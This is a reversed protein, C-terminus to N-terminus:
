ITASHTPIAQGPALDHINYGNNTELGNHKDTMATM